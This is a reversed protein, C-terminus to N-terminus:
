VLKTVLNMNPILACRMSVCRTTGLDINNAVNPDTNITVFTVKYMYNFGIICALQELFCLSLNNNGVHFPDASKM